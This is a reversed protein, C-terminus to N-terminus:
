QSFRQLSKVAFSKIKKTAGFGINQLIERLQRFWKIGSSANLALIVYGAM